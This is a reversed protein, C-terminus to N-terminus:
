MVGKGPPLNAPNPNPSAPNDYGGGPPKAGLATYHKVLASPTLSCDPWTRRYRDARARIGEPSAGADRLEKVARNAQGRSTHTLEGPDWGLAEMLADFIPDPRRRRPKQGNGPPPDGTLTPQEQAGGHPPALPTENTESRTPRERTGGSIPPGTDGTDPPGADDADPPRADAVPRSHLHYRNSTQGRDPEARHEVAVWGAAQLERVARRVTQQTVGATDALRALTPVAGNPLDAYRTLLAYVRVAQASVEPSEVLERPVCAFPPRDSTVAPPTTPQAPM